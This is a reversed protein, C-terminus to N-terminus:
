SGAAVPRAAHGELRWLSSVLAVVAVVTFMSASSIMLATSVGFWEVMYGSLIAGVPGSGMFSFSFFAMMRSRQNVPAQEQMITRSMTMAIGGCVGWAFVFGILSAFSFGLGAGALAFCGIAQALLPARGQRHLDGFKLLLMITTILGLSNAANMWSLEVSGGDYLERVLLPLTVIYSGMFFTGMACNQIVVMRMPPSARVTRYGEAISETIQSLIGHDTPDPKNYPVDLKFYAFAGVMLTASQVMLIMAAGTREAFSAALFGLMQVGFQIM